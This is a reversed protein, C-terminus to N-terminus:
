VQNFETEGFDINMTGGVYGLVNVQAMLGKGFNPCQGVWETGSDYLPFRQPHLIEYNQAALQSLKLHSFRFQWVWLRKNRM